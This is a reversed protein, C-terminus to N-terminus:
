TWLTRDTVRLGSSPTRLCRQVFTHKPHSVILDSKPTLPWILSYGIKALCRGKTGTLGLILSVNLRIYFIFISISKKYLSFFVKYCVKKTCLSAFLIETDAYFVTWMEFCDFLCTDFTLFYLVQQFQDEWTVTTIHITIQLSLKTIM